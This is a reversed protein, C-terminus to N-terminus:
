ARAASLSKGRCRLMVMIAMMVGMAVLLLLERARGSVDSAAPLAPCSCDCKFM